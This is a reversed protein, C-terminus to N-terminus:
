ALGTLSLRFYSLWAYALRLKLKTRWRDGPPAGSKRPSTWFPMGYFGVGSPARVPAPVVVRRRIYIFGEPRQGEGSLPPLTPSPQTGRLYLHGHPPRWPTHAWGFHSRSCAAAAATLCRQSSGVPPRTCRARGGTAGKWRNPRSQGVSPHM